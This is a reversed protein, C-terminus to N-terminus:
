KIWKVSINRSQTSFSPYNINDRVEYVNGNYDITDTNNIDIIKWDPWGVLLKHEDSQNHTYGPKGKGIGLGYTIEEEDPIGLVKRFYGESGPKTHNKNFATVYGLSAASFAVIGMSIGISTLSNDKRNPHHNEKSKGDRTFNRITDPWKSTYLFYASAGVQPNRVMCPLQDQTTQNNVPYTFGWTHELLDQLINKDTIVYVNYYAEHQKTPTNQALYVFHEMHEEPIVFDDWNRQCKKITEVYTKQANIDM